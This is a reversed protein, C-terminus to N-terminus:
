KKVKFLFYTICGGFTFIVVGRIIKLTSVGITVTDLTTEKIENVTWWIEISSEYIAFYLWILFGFFSILFVLWKFNVFYGWNM